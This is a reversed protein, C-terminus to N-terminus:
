PTSMGLGDPKMLPMVYVTLNTGDMYWYIVLLYKVLLMHSTFLSFFLHQSNAVSEM